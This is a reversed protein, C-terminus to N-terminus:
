DPSHIVQRSAFHRKIFILIVLSIAQGDLRPRVFAHVRGGVRYNNFEKPPAPRRTIRPTLGGYARPIKHSLM